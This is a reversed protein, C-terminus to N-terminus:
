PFTVRYFRSPITAADQFEFSGAELESATGITEWNLLDASAEILYVQGPAGTFRLQSSGDAHRLLSNIRGREQVVPRSSPGADSGSLLDM